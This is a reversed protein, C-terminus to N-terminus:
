NVAEGTSWPRGAESEASVTAARRTSHLMRAAKLNVTLRPLVPTGRDSTVGHARPRRELPAVPLLLLRLLRHLNLSELATTTM